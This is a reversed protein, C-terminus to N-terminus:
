FQWRNILEELSPHYGRGTSTERQERATLQLKMLGHGCPPAEDEYEWPEIDGDYESNYYVRLAEVFSRDWEDYFSPSWPSLAARVRHRHASAVLNTLESGDYTSLQCNLLVFVHGEMDLKSSEKFGSPTPTNYIRWVENLATICRRQGEDLTVGCNSEVWNIPNM